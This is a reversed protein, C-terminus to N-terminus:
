KTAKEIFKLLCEASCFDFDFGRTTCFPVTLHYLDLPVSRESDSTTKEIGCTDCKYKTFETKM